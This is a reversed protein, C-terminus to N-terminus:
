TIHQLNVCIKIRSLPCKFNKICFIEFYFEYLDFPALLYIYSCNLRSELGSFLPYFLDQISAYM